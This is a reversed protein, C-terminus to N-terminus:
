TRLASLARYLLPHVEAWRATSSAAVIVSSATAGRVLCALEIYRAGSITEYSDRVCSGIGTRFRVGAASAEQEVHRDGERANHAVRFEPWSALQEEGQRPTVNLYGVIRRGSALLVASATGPDGRALTWGPPYSLVAGTAIRVRRWAPPAPLPRILAFAQASPSPRSVPLRQAGCGAAGALLVTALGAAASSSIATGM